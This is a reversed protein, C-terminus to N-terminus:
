LITNLRSQSFWTGKFQCVSYVLLGGVFELFSCCSLAPQTGFDFFSQPLSVSLFDVDEPHPAAQHRAAAQAPPPPPHERQLRSANFSWLVPWSPCAPILATCAWSLLALCVWDHFGVLIVSERQTDASIAKADPACSIRRMWVIERCHRMSSYNSM